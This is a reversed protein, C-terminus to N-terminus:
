APEKGFLKSLIDEGFKAVQVAMQVAVQVAMQGTEGTVLPHQAALGLRLSLLADRPTLSLPAGALARQASATVEAAHAEANEFMLLAVAADHESHHALQEVLAGDFARM